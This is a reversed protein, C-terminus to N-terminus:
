IFIGETGWDDSADFLKTEVKAPAVEKKEEVPESAAPVQCRIATWRNTLYYHSSYVRCIHKFVQPQQLWLPLHSERLKTSNRIPFVSSDSSSASWWLVQM